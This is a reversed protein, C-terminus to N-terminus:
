GARTSREAVWPEPQQSQVQREREDKWEPQMKAPTALVPDFQDGIQGEDQEM